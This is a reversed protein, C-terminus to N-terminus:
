PLNGMAREYAAREDEPSYVGGALRPGKYYHFNCGPSEQTVPHDCENCVSCNSYSEHSSYQHGCREGSPGIFECIGARNDPPRMDVRSEENSM